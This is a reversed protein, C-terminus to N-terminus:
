EVGSVNGPNPMANIIHTDQNDTPEDGDVDVESFAGTIGDLQITINQEAWDTNQYTVALTVSTTGGNVTITGQNGTINTSASGTATINTITATNGSIIFHFEWNPKYNPTELTVIYNRTSALTVDHLNIAGTQDPCIDVPATVDVDFANGLTFTIFSEDSCGKADQETFVLDYPGGVPLTGNFSVAATVVNLTNTVVISYHTGATYPTTRNGTPYIRWGTNGVATPSLNSIDLMSVSYSHTSNQLPYFSEGVNGVTSATVPAVEVSIAPQRNVTVKYVLKEVSVNGNEDRLRYYVETLGEHFTFDIPNGFTWPVDYTPNTTHNIRYSITGAAANDIFWQGSKCNDSVDTATLAFGTVSETQDVTNTACVERLTLAKEVVPKINDKISLTQTLTSIAAHSCADTISYVRTVPYTCDTGVGITESELSVILGADLPSCADTVTVGAAEIQAITTYPLPMDTLQSFPGLPMLTGTLVPPNNDAITFTATTESHNGSPDTVTFTVPVSLTIGCDDTATGAVYSWTLNLPSTCLDTAVAGGHTAIWTNYESYDTLNTLGRCEVTLDGADTAIVPNSNDVVTVVQTHVVAPNTNDQVSWTRTITYNYYTALAPDSGRTSVSSYSYTPNIDCDETYTLTPVTTIWPNNCDGTVSPALVALNGVWVPSTNDIVQITQTYPASNGCADTATWVRWITYNNDDLTGATGDANRNNSTSYSEVPNPDCGDSAVISALDPTPPINSCSVTTNAPMAGSFIPAQTDVFRINATYTSTQGCADTVTFIVPTVSGAGCTQGLLVIDNYNNSFSFSTGSCVDTVDTALVGANTALWDTIKTGTAAGCELVLDTPVKNVVPGTNDVTYNFVQTCESSVSLQNTSSGQIQIQFSLAVDRDRTSLCVGVSVPDQLVASQSVSYSLVNYDDLWQFWVPLTASANGEFEEPDPNCVHDAVVWGAPCTSGFGNQSVVVMYHTESRPHNTTADNYDWRVQTQGLPFSYSFTYIEPDSSGPPVTTAAQLVTGDQYTLTVTVDGMTCDDTIRAPITIAHSASANSAFVYFRQGTAFAGEYNYVGADVPESGAVFAFEPPTVDELRVQYVHTTVNGAIDQAHWTVDTVSRTFHYTDTPDVTPTALNVDYEAADDEFTVWVRTLNCNDTALIGWDKKLPDPDTARNYDCNLGTTVHTFVLPSSTFEPFGNDKVTVLVVGSTGTIDTANDSNDTIRWQVQTEGVDYNGSANDSLVWAGWATWASSSNARWSTRYEVSKIGGCADSYNTGAVLKLIVAGECLGPINNVTVNAPLTLVPPTNDGVPITRTNSASCGYTNTVTVAVTGNTPVSAPVNWAVSMNNFRDGGGVASGNGTTIAWDYTTYAQTLTYNVPVLPCYNGALNPNVNLVPVPLDRFTIDFFVWTVCGTTNNTIRVRLITPNTTTPNLAWNVTCTSATSSGSITGKIGYSTGWNTDDYQNGGGDYLRWQWSTNALNDVSYTQTTGKCVDRANRFESNTNGASTERVNLVSSASCGLNDTITLNMPQTSATVTNWGTYRPQALNSANSGTWYGNVNSCGAPIAPYAGMGDHAGGHGTCRWYVRPELSRYYNNQSSWSYTSITGSGGSNTSRFRGDYLASNNRHQTDTGPDSDCLNLEMSRITLDSQCSTNITTITPTSSGDSAYLYIRVPGENDCRLEISNYYSRFADSAVPAGLNRDVGNSADVYIGYVTVSCNDQVDTIFSSATRITNASGVLIIPGTNAVITPSVNDRVRINITQTSKNGYIDTAIFDVPITGPTPLDPRVDACTVFPPNMTITFDANCADYTARNFDAPNLVTRGNTANPSQSIIYVIPLTPKLDIIPAGKDTVTLIAPSYGRNGSDDIGVLYVTIQGIGCHITISAADDSPDGDDGTRSILYTLGNGDCNDTYAGANIDSASVVGDGTAGLELIYPKTTILPATKDQISVWTDASASNGSLDRATLTVKIAGVKNFLDDCDFELPVGETGVFLASLNSCNDTTGANIDDTTLIRKGDGGLIIPVPNLADGLVNVDPDEDDFVTIDQVCSAANGSGDTVTWTITETTPRADFPIHLGAWFYDSRLFTISGAPLTCNDGVVIGTLSIDNASYIQYSCLGDDAKHNVDAPCIITPFENDTITYTVVQDIGNGSLDYVHWTITYTGPALNTGALTTTSPASAYDHWIYTNCGDTVTKPDFEAGQVEYFCDGPTNASTNRQYTADFTFTPATVDDSTIEYAASQTCGKSDSLQLTYHGTPMATQDESAAFAYTTTYTYPHGDAYGYTPGAWTYTYGGNGGTVTQNLAATNSEFCTNSTKSDTTISIPDPEDVLLVETYSCGDADTITLTYDSPILNSVTAVPHDTGTIGSASYVGGLTISYNPQGGTFDIVIQGDTSGSCSVDTVVFSATKQIAPTFTINYVDFNTLGHIDTVTWTVTTTNTPDFVIPTTATEGANIHPWWNTADVTTTGDVTLSLTVSAIECNDAVVPLPIARTAECYRYTKDTQDNITPNHTDTVTITYTTTATHGTADTATWTVSTTGVGFSAGVLTAPNSWPSAATGTYNHVLTVGDAGCSGDAATPNLGHAATVVVECAASGVDLTAAGGVLVTTAADTIIPLAGNDTVVQYTETIQCVIVDTTITLIYEAADLNTLHFLNAPAPTIVSGDQTWSMTYTRLTYDVAVQIEGNDSIPCTEPNLAITTLGIAVPDTLAVVLNPSTTTVGNVDASTRFYYTGAQKGLLLTGPMTIFTVGDTSYELLQNTGSEIHSSVEIEGDAYGVCTPDFSHEEIVYPCYDVHVIYNHFLSNPGDSYDFRITNDGISLPNSPGFAYDSGGLASVDIPTGGNITMTYSTIGCNDSVTPLTFTFDDSLECALHDVNTPVNALVPYTVDNVTVTFVCQTSNGSGDTATYTITTTGVPFHCNTLSSPQVAFSTTWTVTPAVGSNDTFVPVEPTLINECTGAINGVSINAPCSVVTPVIGDVVTVTATGATPNGCQDTVTVTVTNDGLNAGTFTSPTVSRTIDAANGTCGDSLADIVDNAVITANGSADLNVTIDKTTLTPGDTDVTYYYTQTATIDYTNHNNAHILTVTYTRTRTWTCGSQFTADSNLVSRRSRETWGTPFTLNTISSLEEAFLADAPQCVTNAFTYDAPATMSFASANYVYLHQVTTVNNGQCDYATSTLTHDGYAYIQDYTGGAIDITTNTEDISCNDSPIPDVNVTSTAAVADVASHVNDIFASMTLDFSNDDDVVVLSNTWTDANLITIVPNEADPSMLWVSWKGDLSCYEGTQRVAVWVTSPLHTDMQVTISSVGGACGQTRLYHRNNTGVPYITNELETTGNNATITGGYVVWEFFDSAGGDVANVSFVQSYPALPASSCSTCVVVADTNSNSVDTGSPYVDTTAKPDFQGMVSIGSFMLITYLVIHLAFKKM